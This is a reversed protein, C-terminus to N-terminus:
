RPFSFEGATRHALSLPLRETAGTKQRQVVYMCYSATINRQHSTEPSEQAAPVFSIQLYNPFSLRYVRTKTEKTTLETNQHIERERERECV